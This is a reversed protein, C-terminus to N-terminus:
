RSCSFILFLVALKDRPSEGPADIADSSLPLPADEPADFPPPLPADIPADTVVQEYVVCDVCALPM